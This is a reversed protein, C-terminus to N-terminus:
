IARDYVRAGNGVWDLVMRLHAAKAAGEGDGVPIDFHAASAHIDGGLPAELRAEVHCRMQNNDPLPTRSTDRGPLGTIIMAGYDSKGSLPIAPGLGITFLVRSRQILARLRHAAEQFSVVRPRKRRLLEM